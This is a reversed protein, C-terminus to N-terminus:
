SINEITVGSDRLYTIGFDSLIKEAEKSREDEFCFDHNGAIVIKHSHPAQSMWEAFDKIAVLSGNKTIDGAHILVDGKPLEIQRHHEHTDSIAVLRLQRTM